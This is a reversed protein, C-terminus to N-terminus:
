MSNEGDRQRVILDIISKRAEPSMRVFELTMHSWRDAHDVSEPINLEVIRAESNLSPGNNMLQIKLHVETGKPIISECVVDIYDRSVKEVSLTLRQGHYRIEGSLPSALRCTPDVYTLRDRLQLLGMALEAGSVSRSVLGTWPDKLERLSLKSSTMVVLPVAGIGPLNRFDRVFTSLRQKQLVKDDVLICDARQEELQGILAQLSAIQIIRWGGKCLDLIIRKGLEPDESVVVVVPHPTSYRRQPVTNKQPHPSDHPRELETVLNGLLAVGFKQSALLPSLDALMQRAAGYRAKPQRALARRVVAELREPMESRRIPEEPITGRENHSMTSDVDEGIFPKEGCLLEFLVVGVAFIDSREDVVKGGLLEPAFYGPKGAFIKPNQKRDRATSAVGFDIIKVGGSREILINSPSLDHHVLGLPEGHIDRLEHVHALGKLVEAILHLVATRPIRIGKALCLRSINELSMGDVMAMAIWPEEGLGGGEVLDVINPHRLLALIRAEQVFGRRIEPIRSFRKDLIKIM